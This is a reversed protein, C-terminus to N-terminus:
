RGIRGLVAAEVCDALRRIAFPQGRRERYYACKPSDTVGLGGEFSKWCPEDICTDPVIYVGLRELRSRVHSRSALEAADAAALVWFAVDSHVRRGNMYREIQLIQDYTYHPCGLMVLNIPGTSASLKQETESLDKDTIVSEPAPAQRNGFAANLTPAEPTLGVMHYMAVAGSTAAEAGFYLFDEQSPRVPKKFRLVPNRAGAIAGTCYGLIGWDYSDKMEAEVDILMEGRRNEDLHYGYLPTKGIVAAALASISSERNSRAGIVSNVYPTASSESFAVNEGFFPVNTGLGPTCCFTLKAGIRRYVDITRLALDREYTTVDYVKTLGDVDWCPNTTPPVACKAGGNVLLECWYTDGEQGSLAVHAKRVGILREADFTKGLAVLLEMAKQAGVGSEGDLTRREEDSLKM